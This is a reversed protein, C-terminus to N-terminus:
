QVGLIVQISHVNGGTNAQLFITQTGTITQTLGQATSSLNKADGSYTATIQHVGVNGFLNGQIQAQGGALGVPGGIPNAFDFFQVTGSLLSTGTVTATITVPNFELVKANSTALSITSPGPPTGTNGGGGGIGGGTSGGGGGCGIAFGLACLAGSVLAIRLRQQWRPFFLIVLVFGVAAAGSLEWWDNRGFGPFVFHHNPRRVASGPAGVPTLTVAVTAPSGNLNVQLPAIALTYGSVLNTGYGCCEAITVTSATQSAPTITINASGAQGAVPVVSVGDAPTLTFDPVDVTIAVDNSISFAYNNDGPYSVSLSESLQPITTATAQLVINGSSDTTQTTASANIPALQNSSNFAIQGTPVPTKQGTNVSATITISQGFKISSSSVTIKSTTAFLTHTVQATSTAAAYNTDGSYKATLSHDGGTTLKLPITQLFQPQRDQGDGIPEVPLPGSIVTTGDLITVTGTPIAGTSVNPM